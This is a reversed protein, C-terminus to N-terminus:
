EEEDEEPAMLRQMRLYGQLGDRLAAVEPNESRETAPIPAMVRMEGLLRAPEPWFWARMRTSLDATLSALGGVLAVAMEPIPWAGQHHEEGRDGPSSQALYRSVPDIIARAPESIPDIWGPLFDSFHIDSGELEPQLFYALTRANILASETLANDIPGRIRYDTEEPLGIKWVTFFDTMQRARYCVGEAGRRLQEETM